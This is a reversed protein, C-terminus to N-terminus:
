DGENCHIFRGDHFIYQSVGGKDDNRLGITDGVIDYLRDQHECKRITGEPIRTLRAQYPLIAEFSTVAACSGKKRTECIVVKADYFYLSTNKFRKKDRAHILAAFESHSSRFTGLVITPSTSARIVYRKFDANKFLVFGPFSSAIIKQYDECRGPVAVSILCLLGLTANKMSVLVQSIEYQTSIRTGGFASSSRRRSDLYEEGLRRGSL